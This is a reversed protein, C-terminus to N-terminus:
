QRIVTVISWPVRCWVRDFFNKKIKLLHSMEFKLFHVEKKLSKM